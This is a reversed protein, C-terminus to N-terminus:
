ISGFGLIEGAREVSHFRYGRPLNYGLSQWARYLEKLLARKEYTEYRLMRNTFETDSLRFRKPVLQDLAIAFLLAGGPEGFPGGVNPALRRDLEDQMILVDRFRLTEELKEHEYEDVPGVVRFGLEDDDVVDDPHPLMLPAPVGTAAAHEIENYAQERYACALMRWRQVDQAKLKEAAQMLHFALALSRANGKLASAHLAHVLAEHIAVDSVTEGERMKVTKRSGKLIARVTPLADLSVENIPASRPRGKPNGSQGKQFRSHEPPRGYGASGVVGHKLRDLAAKGLKPDSPEDSM